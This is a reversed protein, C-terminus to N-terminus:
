RNQLAKELDAEAQAVRLRYEIDEIIVLTDGKKM